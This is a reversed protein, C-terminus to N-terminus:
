AFNARWPAHSVLSEVRDLLQLKNCADGEMLVGHEGIIKGAHLVLAISALFLAMSM